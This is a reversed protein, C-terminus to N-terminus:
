FTVKLSHTNTEIWAKLQTPIDTCLFDSGLYAGLLFDEVSLGPWLSVKIGKKHALAVGSRSTGNINAGLRNIGLALCTAISHEDCPNSTIMLLDADPHLSRMCRLTRCDFSTFVYEADNPRNAMVTKYLKDCYAKLRNEDYLSEPQTKMEFEVYLGSKDSLFQMLDDLFAIKNGKKTSLQEIEARSKEEVAGSGTSTRQLNSDHLIVLEGDKTMRIDTEFGRYGVNYSAQFAEITNEDYEMRGGRHSFVRINQSQALCEFSLAIACVIFLSKISKM